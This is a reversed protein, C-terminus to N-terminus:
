SKLNYMREGKTDSINGAFFDFDNNFQVKLMEEM